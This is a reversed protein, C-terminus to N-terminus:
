RKLHFFFLCLFLLFFGRRVELAKRYAGTRAEDSLMERHIGLGSYSDFYADDVEREKEQAVAAAVSSSSSPRRM